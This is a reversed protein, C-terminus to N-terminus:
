PTYRFAPHSHGLTAVEAESKGELRYDRRGMDRQRNEWRLYGTAITVVCWLLIGSALNIIHGTNYGPAESPLYTWTAVLGGSSGLSVAFASAIARVTPGASNDVTWSIFVPSATFAGMTVLFLAFYKVAIIDITNLLAFGTIITPGALILLIPGRTKLKDSTIASIICVVSGLVYPPVTMLQAKISTFNM